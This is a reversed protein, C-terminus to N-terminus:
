SYVEKIRRCDSVIAELLEDVTIGEPLKASQYLFASGFKNYDGKLPYIEATEKSWPYTITNEADLRFFGLDLISQDSRMREWHTKGDNEDGKEWEIARRYQGGQVQVLLLYKNNVKIKAELLGQMNTYGWNIYATDKNAKEESFIKKVKYGWKVCAFEKELKEKLYVLMQSYRSKTCIDHLRLTQEIKTEYTYKETTADAICWEKSLEHLGSIFNCYDQILACYYSPLDDPVSSQIAECFDMYSVIGWDKSIVEKDPFDTLLSLLLYHKSKQTYYDKLQSLRPVSKVKNELLLLMAGGKEKICFDFHKDERQVYFGPYDNLDLVNGAGTLKKVVEVFLPKTHENTTLWYLFNSHFLEKSALSLNFLPSERLLRCSQEKMISKILIIIVNRIDELNLRHEGPYWAAETYYRHYEDYCNVLTDNTGFFAYTNKKDFDTIGDFQHKEIAQYEDCLAPTIDYHTASDKRPNLFPQTGINQRMFESVHFAPNVLIKWYGHMQQAYMGGMSTGIVVDPSERRCLDRLFLLAVDPNIPLDPSLVEYEPLLQQLHRATSSAGSSSLGHVYLIKKKM